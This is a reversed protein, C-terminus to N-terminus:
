IEVNEIDDIEYDPYNDIKYNKITLNEKRTPAATAVLHYSYSKLLGHEDIALNIHSKTKDPMKLELDLALSDKKSTINYAIASSNEAKTQAILELLYLFYPAAFRTFDGSSYTPAQQHHRPHADFCASTIMASIEKSLPAGSLYLDRPSTLIRQNLYGNKDSTALFFDEKTLEKQCNFNSYTNSIFVGLQYKDDRQKLLIIQKDNESSTLHYLYYGMAPRFDIVQHITTTFLSELDFAIDIDLQWIGDLTDLTIQRDINKVRSKTATISPGHCGTILALIILYIPLNHIKTLRM